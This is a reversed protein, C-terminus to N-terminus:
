PATRSIKAQLKKWDMTKYIDLLVRNNLTDAITGNEPDFLPNGDFKWQVTLLQVTEPPLKRNFYDFNPTVVAIGGASDAPLLQPLQGTEGARFEFRAPLARQEAPMADLEAQLKQLRSQLSEASELVAGGLSRSRETRVNEGAADFWSRGEDVLLPRGDGTVTSGPVKLERAVTDIAALLYRERSVPLWLPRSSDAIVAVAHGNNLFAPMGARDGAQVPEPLLYGAADKYLVPLHAFVHGLNNVSIDMTSPTNFAARLKGNKEEYRGIMM